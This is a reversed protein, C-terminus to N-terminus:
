IDSLATLSIPANVAESQQTAHKDKFPFLMFFIVDHAHARYSKLVNGFLRPAGGTSHNSEM